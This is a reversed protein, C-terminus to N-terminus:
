GALPHAQWLDAKKVTRIDQYIEGQNYDAKSAKRLTARTQPGTRNFLRLYVGSEALCDFSLDRGMLSSVNLRQNIAKNVKKARGKGMSEALHDARRSDPLRYAAQVITKGNKRYRWVFVGPRGMDQLGPIHDPSLGTLCYNSQRTVRAQNDLARQTSIPVGTLAEQTARTIPRGQHTQEYAAWLTARWGERFLDKLRIQTLRGVQRCGTAICAAQHSALLLWKGGTKTIPRILGAKEAQAQWRALTRPAIGQARAARTLAEAQIAGRGSQDLHKALIFLRWGGGQNSRAAALGQLPWLRIYENQGTQPPTEGRVGGGGQCATGICAAPERRNAGTEPQMDQVVEFRGPRRERTERDNFAFEAARRSAAALGQEIQAQYKRLHDPIETM